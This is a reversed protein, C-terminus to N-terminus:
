SINKFLLNKSWKRKLLAVKIPWVPGIFRPCALMVELRVYGCGKRSRPQSLDLWFSFPFHFLFILPALPTGFPPHLILDSPRPPAVFYPSRLRWITLLETHMSFHCCEGGAGGEVAVGCSSDRSATTNLKKKSGSSNSGCDRGRGRGRSVKRAAHLHFTMFIAARCPPPCRAAADINCSGSNGSGSCICKFFIIWVLYFTM